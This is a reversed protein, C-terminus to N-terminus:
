VAKEALMVSLGIDGERRIEGGAGVRGVTGVGGEKYEGGSGSLSAATV